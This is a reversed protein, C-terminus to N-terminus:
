QLLPLSKAFIFGPRIQVLRRADIHVTTPLIDVM